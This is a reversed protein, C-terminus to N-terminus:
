CIRELLTTTGAMTESLYVCENQKLSSSGFTYKWKRPPLSEERKLKTLSSERTHYQIGKPRTYYYQRVPLSSNYNWFSREMNNPMSILVLVISRKDEKRVVYKPIFQVYSLLSDVYGFTQVGEAHEHLHRHLIFFHLIFLSIRTYVFVRTIHHYFPM